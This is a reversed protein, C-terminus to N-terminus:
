FIDSERWHVEEEPESDEMMRIRQRLRERIEDNVTPKHTVPKKENSRMVVWPCSWMEVKKLRRKSAAERIDCLYPLAPSRTEKTDRSMTCLVFPWESQDVQPSHVPSAITHHIQEPFRESKQSYRELEPPFPPPVPKSKVPQASPTPANLQSKLHELEQAKKRNDEQVAEM